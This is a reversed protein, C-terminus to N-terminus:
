KAGIDVTIKNDKDWLINTDFTGFVLMHISTTLATKFRMAVNLQGTEFANHKHHHNCLDPSRDFPILQFHLAM